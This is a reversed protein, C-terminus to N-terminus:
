NIRGTWIELPKERIISLFHYKPKKQARFISKLTRSLDWISVIIHLSVWTIISISWKRTEAAMKSPHAFMPFKFHLNKCKQYFLYSPTSWHYQFNVHIIGLMDHHWKMQGITLINDMENIIWTQHCRTLFQFICLLDRFFQRHDYPWYPTATM